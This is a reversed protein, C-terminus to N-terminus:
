CWCDAPLFTEPMGLINEFNEKNRSSASECEYQLNGGLRADIKRIMIILLALPRVLTFATGLWKPKAGMPFSM